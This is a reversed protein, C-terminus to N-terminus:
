GIITWHFDLCAPDPRRPADMEWGPEECNLPLPRFGFYVFLSLDSIEGVNKRQLGISRAYM